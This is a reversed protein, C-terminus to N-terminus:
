EEQWAQPARHGGEHQLGTEHPNAGLGHVDEPDTWPVGGAAVAAREPSFLHVFLFNVM